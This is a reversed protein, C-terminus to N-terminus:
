LFWCEAGERDDARENTRSRCCWTEVGVDGLALGQGM